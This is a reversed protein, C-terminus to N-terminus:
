AEPDIYMGGSKYFKWTEPNNREGQLIPCFKIRIDKAFIDVIGNKAFCIDISTPNWSSLVKCANIWLDTDYWFEAEPGECECLRYFLGQTPYVNGSAFIDMGNESTKLLVVGFGHRAKFNKKVLSFANIWSKFSKDLGDICSLHVGVLESGRPDPFNKLWDVPAVDEEEFTKAVPWVDTIPKDLKCWIASRKDTAQAYGNIAHIFGLEKRDTHRDVYLQCYDLAKNLNM